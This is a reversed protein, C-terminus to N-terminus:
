NRQDDNFVVFKEPTLFQQLSIPGIHKKLQFALAILYFARDSLMATKNEVATLKTIRNKM